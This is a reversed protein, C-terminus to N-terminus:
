NHNSMNQANHICYVSPICHDCTVVHHVSVCNVIGVVLIHCVDVVCHVGFCWCHLSCWSHLPM